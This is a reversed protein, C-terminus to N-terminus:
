NKDAPAYSTVSKRVLLLYVILSVFIFSKSAAVRKAMPIEPVARAMGELGSISGAEPALARARRAPARTRTRPRRLGYIKRAVASLFLDGGEEENTNQQLKM